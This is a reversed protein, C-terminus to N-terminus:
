KALAESLLVRITEARSRLGRAKRAEELALNLTGSITQQFTVDATEAAGGAESTM